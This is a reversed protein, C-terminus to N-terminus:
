RTLRKDIKDTENKMMELFNNPKHVETDLKHLKVEIDHISRPYTITMNGTTNKLELIKTDMNDLRSGAEMNSLTIDHMTDRLKAINAVENRYRGMTEDFKTIKANM